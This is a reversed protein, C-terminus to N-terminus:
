LSTAPQDREALLVAGAAAAAARSAGTGRGTSARPAAPRRPGARGASLGRNDIFGSQAGPDRPKERPAVVGPLPAGGLGREAQAQRDDGAAGPGALRRRDRPDDRQQVLLRGGGPPGRRQDRQGGRGALRRCPMCSDPGRRLRRPQRDVVRRRAASSSRRALVIWRSSPMAAPSGCGTGGRGASGRERVVDHDDVLGRHHRQRQHRPQELRDAGVRAHHQDAIGPWSVAISAPATSRSM